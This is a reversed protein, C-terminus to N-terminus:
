MRNRRLVRDIITRRRPVTQITISKRQQIKQAEKTKSEVYHANFKHLAIHEDVLQFFIRFPLNSTESECTNVKVLLAEVYACMAEYYSAEGVRKMYSRINENMDKNLQQFSAYM